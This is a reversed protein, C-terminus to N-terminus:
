LWFPVDGQTNQPLMGRGLWEALDAAHQVTVPLAAAGQSGYHLLTWALVSYVAQEVTLDSREMRIHLPQATREIGPSTSIVFAETDSLRFTSGWPAQTVQKELGYLRPVHQRLIEVPYFTAGLEQALAHLMRRIDPPLRGAHHLIVRKGNFFLTPFVRQLISFPIPEDRELETLELFYQMFLGDRRYIRTMVAVRDGRSLHERVVDFGVVLQAFELPETLAFPVNGTKALVGMIVLAMADPDHMTREYVAHSAIGKGLTLSKLHELSPDHDGEADPFFALVAHPEEKEVVRVASAINKENVVRVNRERILDIEFGFDREIQRRMAEMFDSAINDLTNIVALKIPKEQFRPHAAFLGSQLFDAALTERDYPRVRGEAFTLSPTFDMQVFLAPHTRSNYANEILGANKLVDSATRVIKARVSPALQLAQLAKAGDVGFREWEEAHSRIVIRLASAPLAYQADDVAIEVVTDTDPAAQLVRQLLVHRTDALLGQRETGLAGNVRRVTALMGASTRDMVRLGVVGEGDTEDIYQQLNREYVLHSQISLSVAPYGDIDWPRLSPERMAYANPIRTGLDHLADRLASQHTHHIRTQLVFDAATRADPQWDLLPVLEIASEGGQIRALADAIAEADAPADTIIRGSSQVWDGPLWRRLGDAIHSALMGADPTRAVEYAALPPIQELVVPFCEIFLDHQAM